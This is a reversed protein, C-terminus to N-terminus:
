QIRRLLLLGFGVARRRRTHRQNREFWFLRKPHPLSHDHKTPTITRHSYSDTENQNGTQQQNTQQNGTRCGSWRTRSIIITNPRAKQTGIPNTGRSRTTSVVLLTRQAFNAIVVVSVGIKRSRKHTHWATSFVLTAFVVLIAKLTHTLGSDTTRTGFIGLFHARRTVRALAFFGFHRLADDVFTALTAPPRPIADVIPRGPTGAEAFDQRGTGFNAVFDVVIAIAKDVFSEITLTKRAVKTRTTCQGVRSDDAFCIIYRLAAPANLKTFGRFVIGINPRPSAAAFLAHGVRRADLWAALSGGIGCRSIHKCGSAKHAVGITIAFEVFTGITLACFFVEVRALGPGAVRKIGFGFALASALDAFL